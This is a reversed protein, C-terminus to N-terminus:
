GRERGVERPLEAGIGAAHVRGHEAARMERKGAPGDAGQGRRHRDREIVAAVAGGAFRQALEHAAAPDAAAAAANDCQFVAARGLQREAAPQEGQGPLVSPRHLDLANGKRGDARIHVDDRLPAVRDDKVGPRVLRGHLAQLPVM